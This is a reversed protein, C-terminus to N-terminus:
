QKMSERLRLIQKQHHRGHLLHFKRWQAGSLPGLFPHDLLPTNRGFRSECLAIMEDLAAIKDAYGSRVQESPLGKPRTSAPSQRGSPIHNFTFVYLARTRQQLTAPTVSPKGSQLMRDFGKTTGTYSLYLHELIEAACWKGSPHWGLQEASMGAVASELMNRLQEFLPDM